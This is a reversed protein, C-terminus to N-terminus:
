IFRYLVVVKLVLIASLYFPANMRKMMYYGEFGEATRYGSFYVNLPPKM